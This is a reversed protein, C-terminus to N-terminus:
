TSSTNVLVCFVLVSDAGGGGLPQGRTALSRLHSSWVIRRWYLIVGRTLSGVSGDTQGDAQEDNERKM